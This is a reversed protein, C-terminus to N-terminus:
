PGHGGLGGGEVLEQARQLVVRLARGDQEVDVAHERRDHLVRVVRVHRLGGAPREDLDGLAVADHGAHRAAAGGVGAADNREARDGVEARVARLDQPGARDGGLHVALELGPRPADLVEGAVVVRLVQALQAHPELVLLRDGPQV